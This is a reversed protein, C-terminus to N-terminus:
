KRKSLERLKKQVTPRTIKVGDKNLVSTIENFNFGKAKLDKVKTIHEESLNIFYPTKFKNKKAYLDFQGRSIPRFKISFDKRIDAFLKGKKVEKKLFKDEEKTFKIHKVQERRLNPNNGDPYLHFFLEKFKEGTVVNSIYSDIVNFKSRIKGYNKGSNYMKHIEYAIKESTKIKNFPFNNKKNPTKKIKNEDIISIIKDRINEKYNIRILEIGQSKAYKDKEKDKKKLRLFAAQRRKRNKEWNKGSSHQEGDIEIFILHNNNKKLVIDVYHINGKHKIQHEINFPVGLQHLTYYAVLEYKSANCFNCKVGRTIKNIKKEHVKHWSHVNCKVSITEKQRYKKNKDITVASVFGNSHKEVLKIIQEGTKPKNGACIGCGKGALHDEYRQKHNGKHGPCFYIITKKSGIYEFNNYKYFNNHVKSLREIHEKKTLNRGGCKDCLSNKRYNSLSQRAQHGKPCQFKIIWVKGRGSSTHITDIFKFKLKKKRCTLDFEKKIESKSKLKGMM